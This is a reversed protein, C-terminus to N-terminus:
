RAIEKVLSKIEEIDAKIAKQREEMRIQQEKTGKQDEVDQELQNIKENNVGYSAAAGMLAFVIGIWKLAENM